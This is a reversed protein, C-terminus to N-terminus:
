SYWDCVRGSSNLVILFENRPLLRPQLTNLAIPVSDWNKISRATITTKEKYVGNEFCLYRYNLAADLDHENLASTPSSTVLRCMATLIIDIAAAISIIEAQINSLWSHQYEFNAVHAANHRREAANKYSDSLNAVGGFISDSIDKLKNWGGSINFAKLIDLIEQASVNSSENAFSYQSLSFNRNATSNINGSENQIMSLWDGGDKKELKARFALAKLAGLTTAEQLKEPLNDYRIGSSSISVLAEHSKAKIFDELINFAVIGLGKRLLNAAGNHDSTGIGVNILSESNVAVNLYKIRDLLEDKASM